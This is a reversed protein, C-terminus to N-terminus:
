PPSSPHDHQYPAPLIIGLPRLLVLIPTLFELDPKPVFMDRELHTLPEVLWCLQRRAPGSVHCLGRFDAGQYIHGLRRVRFAQSDEVIQDLVQLSEDERKNREMELYIRSVQQM